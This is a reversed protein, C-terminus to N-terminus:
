EEVTALAEDMIEQSLPIVIIEVKEEKNQERQRMRDGGLNNTIQSYVM